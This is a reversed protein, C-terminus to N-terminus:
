FKSPVVTAVLHRECGEEMSSYMRAPVWIKMPTIQHSLVYATTSPSILRKPFLRKRVEVQGEGSM